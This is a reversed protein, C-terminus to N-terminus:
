GWKGVKYFTKTMFPEQLKDFAKRYQFSGISKIIWNTSITYWLTKNTSISFNKCGQSLDGYYKRKFKDEQYNIFNNGWHLKFAM